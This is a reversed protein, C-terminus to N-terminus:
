RGYKRQFHMWQFDTCIWHVELFIMQLAEELSCRLYYYASAIFMVWLQSPLVKVM